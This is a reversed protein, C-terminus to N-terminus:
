PNCRKCPEYGKSVAEERSGSFYVKNKEAMSDVSSCSPYHFKKTNANLIYNVGQPNEPAPPPVVVEPAPTPEPTPAPTQVPTAVPTPEPTPAPTPVPTAVPAPEPTPAPTQVPTPVPTPEPTPAPTPAPIVAPIVYESDRKSDGTKYDIIIGPQVNYVFVCFSVKTGNDEVSKAEMLVGSAVLNDGEYLPTVRYLVHHDTKKIYNAVQDEFGQMGQTNMYRTGTILNQVNDNEGTLQFAILHCRNYLYNDEILDNYKVTHWGSPKIKGIEGRPETPMTVKSVNAYTAGCRGLEDLESYYEFDGFKSDELDLFPVNRNVTVFAEGYYPPIDVLLKQNNEQAHMTVYAVPEKIPQGNVGDIEAVKVGLAMWLACIFLGIKM